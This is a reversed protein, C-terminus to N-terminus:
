AAASTQWFADQHKELGFSGRLFRHVAETAPTDMIEHHWEVDAFNAPLDDSGACTEVLTRYAAQKMDDGYRAEVFVFKVQPLDDNSNTYEYSDTMGNFHGQQFQEAYLKVMVVTDRPQDTIEVRVSSGGAYSESRVSGPVGLSKLHKRIMSAAKAHESQQKM